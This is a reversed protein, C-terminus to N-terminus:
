CKRSKGQEEYERQIESTLQKILNATQRRLEAVTSSNSSLRYIIEKKEKLVQELKLHHPSKNTVLEEVPAIFCM